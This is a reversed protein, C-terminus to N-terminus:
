NAERGEEEKGTLPKVRINKHMFEDFMFDHPLQNQFYDDEVDGRLVRMEDEVITAIKKFVEPVKMREGYDHTGTM